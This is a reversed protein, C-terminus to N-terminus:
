EVGDEEQGGFKGSELIQHNGDSAHNSIQNYACGFITNEAKLSLILPTCYLVSGEASSKKKGVTHNQSENVNM